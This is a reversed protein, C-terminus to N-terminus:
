MEAFLRCLVDLVSHFNTVVSAAWHFNPFCGLSFIKCPKSTQVTSQGLRANFFTVCDRCQKSGPTPWKRTDVDQIMAVTLALPKLTHPFFFIWSPSSLNGPDASMSLFELLHYAKTFFRANEVYIFYITLWLQCCYVVTQIKPATWGFQETSM